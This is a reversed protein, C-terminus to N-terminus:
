ILRRSAPPSWSSRVSERRATVVALALLTLPPLYAQTIYSLAPDLRLLPAWPTAFPSAFFPWAPIALLVLLWRGLSSALAMVASIVAIVILTAPYSTITSTSVALTALVVFAAHKWTLLQLGRRPGPSSAVAVIQLGLALLIYANATGYVLSWGPWGTVYVLWALLAVAALAAGRHLRLLALAVMALPATLGQLAWLPFGNSFAGPVSQLARTEQVTYLLLLMVPLIVSLVALADRWVPAAGGRQPQCRVRLAGWILDTADAIGPRHKGDPAATMLVALMEEEHVRRYRAPYFALLRRYGRELGGCGPPFNDAQRLVAAPEPLDALVRHLDGFTKANLMATLREDLEESTLRAAAFHDCLTAAVRDRDADSIRFRDDV